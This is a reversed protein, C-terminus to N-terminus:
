PVPCVAAPGAAAFALPPPAPPAPPETVAPAGAGGGDVRLVDLGRHYDSVYVLDPRGPVFVAQGAVGDDPRFWGVQRVNAPDRVDLFRVGAQFFADAVVGHANVDFWHSSCSRVGEIRPSWLSVPVLRQADRDIRWTQFRGGQPEASWPDAAGCGNFAEETVLVTHRDLRRVNHHIVQNTRANDEPTTAALLRPRLPDRPPAYMATGGTGSLWVDGYDDVHADHVLGPVYAGYPDGAPSRVTGAVRPHDLDRLDVVLVGGDRAGTVYAFACDLVCTATHGAGPLPTGDAATGVEAPLTLASRLAPHEPDAVDYVFLVGPLYPTPKVEALPATSKRRDMAVLLVHRAESVDVDENQWLPLPLHAVLRPTEPLATDFVWLGGDSAADGDPGGYGTSRATTHFYYRGSFRGGVGVGTPVNAVLRVNPSTSYVTLPTPPYAHAAPALLAAVALLALPLRRM